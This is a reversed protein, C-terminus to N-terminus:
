RIFHDSKFQRVVRNGFCPEPLHFIIRSPTVTLRKIMLIQSNLPIEISLDNKILKDLLKNIDIFRSSPLCLTLQEIVQLFQNPKLNVLKNAFQNDIKGKIINENLSIFCEIAYIM